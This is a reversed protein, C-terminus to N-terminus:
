QSHGCVQHISYTPVALYAWWLPNLLKDGLSGPWHSSLLLWGFAILACALSIFMWNADFWTVGEQDLLAQGALPSLSIVGGGAPPSADQDSAAAQQLLRMAVAFCGIDFLSFLHIM